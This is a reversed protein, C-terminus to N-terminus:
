SSPIRKASRRPITASCIHIRASVVHRRNSAPSHSPTILADSSIRRHYPGCPWACGSTIAPIESALTRASRPSSSRAPSSM